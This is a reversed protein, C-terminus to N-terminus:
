PVRQLRCSFQCVVNGPEPTDATFIGPIMVAIRHVSLLTSNSLRYARRRKVRFM